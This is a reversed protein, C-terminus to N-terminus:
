RRRQSQGQGQNADYPKWRSGGGAVGSSGGGGRSSPSSSSTFAIKSRKGAAQAAEHQDNRAKQREAIKDAHWEAKVKTPDWIDPPFATATEDVDVFEVLTAYLHPNRFARNSMLADNFHRNQTRKLNRFTELKAVIAPDPESSSAAPIGYDDNSAPLLVDQQIITGSASTLAPTAPESSSTARPVFVSVFSEEPTKSRARATQRPRNIARKIIDVSGNGKSGAGFLKLPPQNDNVAASTSAENESSSDDGGYSVLAAM